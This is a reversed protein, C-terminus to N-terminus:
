KSTSSKMEYVSCSLKLLSAGIGIGLLKNQALHSWKM